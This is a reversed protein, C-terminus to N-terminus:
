KLLNLKFFFVAELKNMQISYKKFIKEFIYNFYLLIGNNRKIYNSMLIDLLM